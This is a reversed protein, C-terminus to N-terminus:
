LGIAQPLPQKAFMRAVVLGAALAVGFITHLRVCYYKGMFIKRKDTHNKQVFSVVLNGMPLTLASLLVSTFPLTQTFGLALLLSYLGIISWKVVLSGKETGLRVQYLYFGFMAAALFMMSRPNGAKVAVLSLGIVGLVLLLWAIINIATRSEPHLGKVSYERSIKKIGYAYSINGFAAAAAAMALCRYGDSLGIVTTMDKPNPTSDPQRFGCVHAHVPLALLFMTSTSAFCRHFQSSGRRKPGSCSKWRLYYYVIFPPWEVVFLGLIMSLGARFFPLLGRGLFVDRM